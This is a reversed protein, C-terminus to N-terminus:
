IEQSFLLSGLKFYDEWLELDFRAFKGEKILEVDFEGFSHPIAEGMNYVNGNLFRRYQDGRIIIAQALLNIPIVYNHSIEIVLDLIQETSFEVRAFLQHIENLVDSRIINEMNDPHMNLAVDVLRQNRGELPHAEVVEDIYPMYSIYDSEVEPDLIM